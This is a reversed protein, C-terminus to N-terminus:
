VMELEPKEALEAAVPTQAPNEGSTQAPVRPLRLTARTGADPATDLVFSGGLAHSTAYVISYSLTIAGDEDMDVARDSAREVPCFLDVLQDPELGPGDDAVAFMVQGDIEGVAVTVDGEGEPAAEIAAGVLHRLAHALLTPNVRITPADEVMYHIRVGRELARGAWRDVAARMCVAPELLRQDAEPLRASAPKYQRELLDRMRRAQRQVIRLRFADGEGGKGSLECQGLIVLLPSYLMDYTAALLDSRQATAPRGAGQESTAGRSPSVSRDHELSRIRRLLVAVALLSVFPFLIDLALTM